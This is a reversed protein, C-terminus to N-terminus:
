AGCPEFLNRQVKKQTDEQQDFGRPLGHSSAVSTVTACPTGATESLSSQARPQPVLLLRDRRHQSRHGVVGEALHAGLPPTRRFWSVAVLVPLRPPLVLRVGRSLDPLSRGWPALWCRQRLNSAPLHTQRGCSSFSLPLFLFFLFFLLVDRHSPARNM